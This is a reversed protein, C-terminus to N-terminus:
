KLRRPRESMIELRERLVQISKMCAQGRDGPDETGGKPDRSIEM